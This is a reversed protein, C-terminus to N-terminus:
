RRNIKVATSVLVVASILLEIGNFIIMGSLIAVCWVARSYSVFAFHVWRSIFLTASTSHINKLSICVWCKKNVVWREDTCINTQIYTQIHAYMGIYACM